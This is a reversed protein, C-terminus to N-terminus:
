LGLEKVLDVTQGRTTPLDRVLKDGYRATLPQGLHSVVECREVRGERWWISVEFGGRARLGTVHGNRWEAPLAPLLAVIGAAAFVWDLPSAFAVLM